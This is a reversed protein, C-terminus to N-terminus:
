LGGFVEWVKQIGEKLRDIDQTTNYLYFSARSTGPVGWLKMLPQCCHHGARLAVGTSSIIDGTDHPHTEGVAFSLIGGRNKTSRGGLIKLYPLDGLRKLAEKLLFQEHAHINEMGISNLYDIAASLGFVGEVAPTGPELGTPPKQFTSHDKFVSLIMSGGTLLPSMEELLEYKGYLVGLGTPALMKHPSFCLFDCDIDEVNTPMHSVSQAGDVCIKAEFEHALRSLEKVPHIRGTVNSMGSISVFKVKGSSFSHKAEDILIEGTEPNMPLFKLVAGTREAVQQWPILNAHHEQESLLIEDGEAVRPLVYGLAVQNLAFTTGQPTFIIQRNDDSGIFESVKNRTEEFLETAEGSKQYIGRHVSAGSESYYKTVSDIVSQPKLSTAGNDLYCYPRGNMTTKLVPFDERIKKVDYM